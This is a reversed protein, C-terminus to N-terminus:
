RSTVYFPDPEVDFWNAQISRPAEYGGGWSKYGTPGGTSGGNSAGQSNSKM